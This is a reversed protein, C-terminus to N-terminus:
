DQWCFIIIHCFCVKDLIDITANFEILLKIAEAHGSSAATHLPAWDAFDGRCDVNVGRHLLEDIELMKNSNVACHLRQEKESETELIKGMNKQVINKWSPM